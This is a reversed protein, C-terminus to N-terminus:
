KIFNEYIYDEATPLNMTIEYNNKISDMKSQYLDQNLEELKLNETLKIIGNTDFVEGISETGYYIPITGMAFCDTIKETYMLPYTGNEMAVSFMYDKIGVEKTPITKYGRGFLDLKNKYKFIMKQRYRHDECMVKNSAVMSVLKNKQHIGYDKVWPRANCIVKKFKSSFPLLSEDHTFILEFNDELYSINRLCNEYLGRNITKSESLWAYNKKNKNVSQKIIAHDIHISIPATHNFKVWEILKPTSGASSCIDHQFGGGVMNIKKKM